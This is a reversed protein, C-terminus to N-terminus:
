SIIGSNNIGARVFNELAALYQHSLCIVDESGPWDVFMYRYKVETNTVQPRPKLPGEEQQHIKTTGDRKQMKVGISTSINIHETISIAIHKSPHVPETHINFNRKCKFFRFIASASMQDNYWQRENPNARIREYVYQLVSCAASLFASLEYSFFEPNNISAEMSQAFYKAEKLKEHERM